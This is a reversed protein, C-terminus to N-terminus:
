AAKNERQMLFDKWEGAKSALTEWHTVTTYHWIKKSM